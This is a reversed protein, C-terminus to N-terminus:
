MIVLNKSIKVHYLKKHVQENSSGSIPIINKWYQTYMMAGSKFIDILILKHHQPKWASPLPTKHSSTYPVCPHWLHESLLFSKM